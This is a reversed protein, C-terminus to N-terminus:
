LKCASFFARYRLASIMWKNLLVPVPVFQPLHFNHDAMPVKRGRTNPANPFILLGIAMSNNARRHIFNVQDGANYIFFSKM